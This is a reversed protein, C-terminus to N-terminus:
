GHKKMQVEVRLSKILQKDDTMAMFDGWEDGTVLAWDVASSLTDDGSIINFVAEAYRSLTDGLAETDAGAASIFISVVPLGIGEIIPREQDGWEIQKDVPVIEIKPFSGSLDDYRALKKWRPITVSRAAEIAVLAAELGSNLATYLADIADEMTIM